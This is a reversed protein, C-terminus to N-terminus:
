NPEPFLNFNFYHCFIWVAWDIGNSRSFEDRSRSDSTPVVRWDVDDRGYVSRIMDRQHTSMGNYIYVTTWLSSTNCLYCLYGEEYNYELLYCYVLDGYSLRAVFKDPPNGFLTDPTSCDDSKLYTKWEEDKAAAQEESTSM